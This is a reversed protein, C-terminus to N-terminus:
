IRPAGNRVHLAIAMTRCDDPSDLFDDSESIRFRSKPQNAEGLKQKYVRSKKIEAKRTNAGSESRFCGGMFQATIEHAKAFV